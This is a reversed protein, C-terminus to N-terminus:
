EIIETRELWEKLIPIIENKHSFFTAHDAPKGNSSEILYLEADKHSAKLKKFIDVADQYNILEDEVGHIILVPMEISDAYDLLDSSEEMEKITSYFGKIRFKYRHSVYLGIPKDLM